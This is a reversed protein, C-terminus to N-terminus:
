NGWTPNLRCLVGQNPRPLNNSAGLCLIWRGKERCFLFSESYNSRNARRSAVPGFTSGGEIASDIIFRHLDPVISEPGSREPVGDFQKNM